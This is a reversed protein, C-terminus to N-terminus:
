RPSASGAGKKLEARYQFASLPGPAENVAAVLQEVTAARPDYTLIAEGAELNVQVRTVGPIELLASRV